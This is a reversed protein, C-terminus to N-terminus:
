TRRKRPLNGYTERMYKVYEVHRDYAIPHTIYYVTSYACGFTRQLNQLSTGHEYMKRIQRKQEQDFRKM